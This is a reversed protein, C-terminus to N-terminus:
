EAKEESEVEGRAIATLRDVIKERLLANRVQRRDEDSPTWKRGEEEVAKQIEAIRAEVEEDTVEIGEVEVFRSFVLASRLREEAQPRAEERLEEETKGIAKLYDEFSMRLDRQVRRALSEVMEDIEEELAQPPYVVKAGEVLAQMVKEVYEEDAERQKRQRIQEKIHKRLADLDDFGATRALDDDIGPLLREFVQKVQVTFEAEEFDFSSGEPVKLRFTKEEGPEMGVLAEYFGPLPWENELDVMAEAEDDKLFVEGQDTRGEVSFAVVDGAQVARGERPELVAHEERLRELAEEIEKKTVRVTRPKIRLSRYDGLDVEPALPVTFVYRLPETEVEELSAPAYPEIGERELAEKFVPEILNEAAEGRLFEEGYRQAIIHYPARGKRFGPISVQRAITRAVRRMEERVREEPVNITLRVQRPEVTETAIQLDSTQEAREM